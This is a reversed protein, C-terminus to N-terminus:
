PLDWSLCSQYKNYSQLLGSLSTIHFPFYIEFDSNSSFIYIYIHYFFYLFHILSDYLSYKKTYSILKYYFCDGKLKTENKLQLKICLNKKFPPMNTHRGMRKLIAFLHLKLFYCIFFICSIKKRLGCLQVAAVKKPIIASSEKWPTGPVAYHLFSFAYNYRCLCWLPSNQSLLLCQFNEIFFYIKFDQMHTLHTKYQQIWQNGARIEVDEQSRFDGM